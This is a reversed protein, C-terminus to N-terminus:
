RPTALLRRLGELHLLDHGALVRLLLGISFDIGAGAHHGTRALETPSLGRWLELDVGRLARFREISRAPPTEHHRQAEVWLDQDIPHLLPREEALITRTRYGFVWESDGLHGLVENGSWKGPAPREAFAQAPHDDLLAALADGTAALLALPDRDGVLDLQRRLFDYAPDAGEIAAVASPSGAPRPSNTTM